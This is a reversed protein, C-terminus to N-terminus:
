FRRTGQILYLQSDSSILYLFWTFTRLPHAATIATQKKM